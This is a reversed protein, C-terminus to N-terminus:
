GSSVPRIKGTAEAYSWGDLEPPTVGVQTLCVLAQGRHETGHNIAQVLIVSTETDHEQGQYRSRIVADDSAAAAIEELTDGNEKAAKLLVDFGPFQRESIQPQPENGTLHRIYRREAGIIHLLTDRAGGYTGEVKRTLREEDLGQCLEILRM